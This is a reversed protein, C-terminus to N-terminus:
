IKIKKRKKKRKELEKNELLLVAAHLHAPSPLTVVDDLEADNVSEVGFADRPIDVALTSYPRVAM